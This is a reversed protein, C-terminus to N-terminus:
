RELKEGAGGGARVSGVRREGEEGARNGKRAPRERARWALELVARGGGRRQRTGREHRSKKGGEEALLVLLRCEDWKGGKGKGCAGWAGFVVAAGKRWEPSERNATPRQRRGGM